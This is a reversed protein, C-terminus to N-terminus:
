EPFLLNEPLPYDSPKFLLYKDADYRLELGKTSIRSTYVKKMSEIYLPGDFVEGAYTLVNFFLIRIQTKRDAEFAYEAHIRNTSAFGDLLGDERIKLIYSYETMSKAVKIRNRKEDVFGILKWQTGILPLSAYGPNDPVRSLPVEAGEEDPLGEEQCGGMLPLLFIIAVMFRWKSKFKTLTKM